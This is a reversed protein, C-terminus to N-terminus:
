VGGYFVFLRRFHPISASGSHIGPCQAVRPISGLAQSCITWWGPFFYIRIKLPPFYFSDYALPRCSEIVARLLLRRRWVTECALSFRHAYNHRLSYGPGVRDERLLRKSLLQLTWIGSNYPRQEIETYEFSRIPSRLIVWVNYIRRVSDSKFKNSNFLLVRKRHLHTRADRCRDWERYKHPVQKAM